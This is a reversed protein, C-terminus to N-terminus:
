LHYLVLSSMIVVFPAVSQEYISFACPQIGQRRLIDQIVKVVNEVPIKTLLVTMKQHRTKNVCIYIYRDSVQIYYM